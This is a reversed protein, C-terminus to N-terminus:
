SRTRGPGISSSSLRPLMLRRIWNSPFAFLGMVGWVITHTELLWDNM